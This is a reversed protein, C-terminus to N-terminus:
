EIHPIKVSTNMFSSREGGPIFIRSSRCAPDAAIQKCVVYYKKVSPLLTLSSKRRPDRQQRRNCGRKVSPLLPFSSASAFIDVKLNPSMIFIRRRIANEQNAKNVETFRIIKPKM